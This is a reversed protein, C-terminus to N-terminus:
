FTAPGPSVVPSSHGERHRREEELRLAQSIEHSQRPSDPGTLMSSQTLYGDLQKNNALEMPTVPGSTGTPNLRPATPNSRGTALKPVRTSAQSSSQAGSQDALQQAALAAQTVMDRQYQQLRRKAEPSPRRDTKNASRATPVRLESRFPKLKVSPPLVPPRSQSAEYNSPYYKGTPLPRREPDVVPSGLAQVIRESSNPSAATSSTDSDLSTDAMAAAAHDVENRPQNPAM